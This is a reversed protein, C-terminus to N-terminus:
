ESPAYPRPHFWGVLVDSGELVRVLSAGLGGLQRRDHLAREAIQLALADEVEM